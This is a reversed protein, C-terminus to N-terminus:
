KYFIISIQELTYALENFLLNETIFLNKGAKKIKKAAAVVEILADGFTLPTFSAKEDIAPVNVAMTGSFVVAIIVVGSAYTPFSYGEIGLCKEMPIEVEPVNTSVETNM